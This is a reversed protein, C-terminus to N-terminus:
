LDKTLNLFTTPDINALQALIKRNLAINFRKLTNILVNYAVGNARSAINIRNIWFRRFFRKKQKRGIYSSKLSKMVRQNAVCFLTSQSGQFGKAYKLVKKRRKRAVNGRKVRNM